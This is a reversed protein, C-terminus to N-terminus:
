WRVVGTGWAGVADDRVVTAVGDRVVFSQLRDSGIEVCAPVSDGPGARCLAAGHDGLVGWVVFEGDWAPALHPLPAGGEPVAVPASWARGGDASTAIAVLVEAESRGLLAMSVIDGEASLAAHEVRTDPGLLGDLTVEVAEDVTVASEGVLVPVIRVRRTYRYDPDGLSTGVAAVLGRTTAVLAVDTPFIARAWVRDTWGTEADWAAIALGVGGEAGVDTGAHPNNPWAGWTRGDREVLAARFFPGVEEDPFGMEVWAGDAEARCRARWPLFGAGEVLDLERFCVRAGAATDLLAPAEAAYVGSTSVVAGDVRVESRASRGDLWRQDATRAASAVISVTGTRATPDLAEFPTGDQATGEFAEVIPLGEAWPLPIGLHAALTPALDLQSIPGELELGPVTGGLLLMPLERCGTCSDGHSHWGDDEDHRHRGHDTTVVLLLSEVYAPHANRLREYFDALLEDLALVGEIYADGEGVHGARDADHLNVVLLRPPGADILADLAEFVPADDNAPEGRDPDIVLDYRAGEGFGPALSATIPSLLETNALLVVDDEGLGLTVRAAEFITPLEPRYLGPGRDTEVPFNAFTEPRGTLLAAHAPATITVGQNLAARVVTGRVALRSWTEEAYAEGSVGTLDSTQTRSLEDTRVGDLVLVLVSPPLPDAPPACGNCAGLLVLLAIVVGRDGNGM